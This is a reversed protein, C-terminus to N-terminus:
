KTLSNGNSAENGLQLAWTKILQLLGTASFLIVAGVIYVVLHKKIEAKDNPSAAIYKIAIVLLMIIAVGMGVLQCIFIITGIVSSITGSAGSDDTVNFKQDFGSNAFVPSAAVFVIAVVLLIIALTKIVNRKM